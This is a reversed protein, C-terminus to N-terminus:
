CFCEKKMAIDILKFLYKTLSITQINKSIRQKLSQIEDDLYLKTNGKYRNPISVFDIDNIGNQQLISYFKHYKNKCSRCRPNKMNEIAIFYIDIKEYFSWTFYESTDNNVIYRPEREEFNLWDKLAPDVDKEIKIRQQHYHYLMEFIRFMADDMSMFTEEQMDSVQIEYRIKKTRTRYTKIHRYPDFLPYSPLFNGIIYASYVADSMCYGSACNKEPWEDCHLKTNKENKELFYTKVDDPTIDQIKVSLSHTKTRPQNAFSSKILPQSKEHSVKNEECSALFSKDRDCPASFSKDRDCSIQQLSTHQHYRIVMGNFQPQSHDVTDPPIKGSVYKQYICALHWM